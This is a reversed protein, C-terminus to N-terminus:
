NLKKWTRGGDISYEADNLKVKTETFFSPVGKPMHDDHKAGTIGKPTFRVLDPTKGELFQQDPGVAGLQALEQFPALYLRNEKGHPVLFGSGAAEKREAATMARYVKKDHLPVIMGDDLKITEQARAMPKRAGQIIVSYGHRCGVHYLGAATAEEITPYGDTNGNLSLVKGEWVACEKHPSGHQSVQVLDFGFETANNRVSERSANALTQRAVLEAYRDLAWKKGAKDVLATIGQEEIIGKVNEGIKEATQGTIMGSAIQERIADQRAIRVFDQASKQVGQLTNGFRLYADEALAQTAEIHVSSFAKPIKNGGEVIRQRTNEGFSKYIFPVDRELIKKTGADLQKTAEAIRNLMVQSREKRWLTSAESRLMSQMQTYANKYFGALANASANVLHEGNRGDQLAM